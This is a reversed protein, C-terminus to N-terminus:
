DLPFVEAKIKGEGGTNNDADDEGQQEVEEPSLVTTWLGRDMTLLLSLFLAQEQGKNQVRYKRHVISQRSHVRQQGQVRVGTGQIKQLGCVTLQM